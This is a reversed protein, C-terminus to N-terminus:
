FKYQIRLTFLNDKLDKTYGSLNASTENKIFDYYAMFKLNSDWLWTIGFGWTDYRVDTASYVKGGTLVKGLEDGKADTNPDYWDYKIVAQLPTSAINQIFYFYAGNFKRFYVNSVPASTAFATTSSLAPQRGQIYEARLTTIGAPSEFTFQMDAGAYNRNVKKNKLNTKDIIFGEIGSADTGSKFSTDNDTRYGGDYYSFGISYKYKQNITTRSATIRSIFDKYKDFEAASSTASPAGSGNFIGAEVKLWNWNGTKPGQIILEAGLDRENPFIIQSMRGREPTESMSSSYTVEFGFPRDQLGAQLSFWQIWPDTFKLRVDNVVIGRETADIQFVANTLADNSTYTSKIRGRRLSIRKDTFAPFSGGGFSNMGSSDAYQFQAQFYGTIKIRKLIELDSMIKSLTAATTDSTEEQAIAPIILVIILASTLFYKLKKM